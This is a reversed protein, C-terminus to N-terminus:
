EGSILSVPVEQSSGRGVVGVAGLRRVTRGVVFGTVLGFPVEDSAVDSDRATLFQGQWDNSARVRREAPRRAFSGSIEGRISRQCRPLLMTAPAGTTPVSACM